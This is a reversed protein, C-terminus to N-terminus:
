IAKTVSNKEPSSSSSEIKDGDSTTNIAVREDTIIIRNLIRVHENANCNHRM